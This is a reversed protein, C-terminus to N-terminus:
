TAGLCTVPGSGYRPREVAEPRAFITRGISDASLAGQRSPLRSVLSVERRRATTARVEALGLLRRTSRSRREVGVSVTKTGGISAIRRGVVADKRGARCGRSGEHASPQAVSTAKSGLAEGTGGHPSASTRM